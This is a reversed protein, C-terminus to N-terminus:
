ELYDMPNVPEDNKRLQFYLNSGELTYYKTQESVYGIVSGAEVMDGKEVSIEKLQGYVAQYGSGLDM